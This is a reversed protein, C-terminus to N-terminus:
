MPRSTRLVFFLVFALSVLCIVTPPLWYALPLGDPRNKVFFVYVGTVIPVLAIHLKWPFALFLPTGNYTLFLLSMIFLVLCSAAIWQGMFGTANGYYGLLSGSMPKISVLLKDVYTADVGLTVAIVRLEKVDKEMKWIPYEFTRDHQAREIQAKIKEAHPRLTNHALSQRFFPSEVFLQWIEFRFFAEVTPKVFQLVCNFDKDGTIFAFAQFMTKRGQIDVTVDRLAYVGCKGFGFIQPSNSKLTPGAITMHLNDQTALFFPKLARYTAEFESEPVALTTKSGPVGLGGFLAVQVPYRYWEVELKSERSPYIHLCAEASTSFYARASVSKNSLLVFKDHFDPHVHKKLLRTYEAVFADIFATASNAAANSVEPTVGEIM